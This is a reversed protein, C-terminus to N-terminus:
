EWFLRVVGYIPLLVIAWSIVIAAMFSVLKERPSWQERVPFYAAPLPEMPLGFSQRLARREVLEAFQVVSM